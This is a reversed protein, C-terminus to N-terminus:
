VASALFSCVQRELSPRREKNGGVATEEVRGEKPAGDYSTGQSVDEEGGGQMERTVEKSMREETLAPFPEVGVAKLRDSSGRHMNNPRETGSQNSSRRQMWTGNEDTQYARREYKQSDDNWGGSGYSGRRIEALSPAKSTVTGTAAMFGPPPNAEM